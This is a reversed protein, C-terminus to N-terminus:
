NKPVSFKLEEGGLNLTVVNRARFFCMREGIIIVRSLPIKIPKFMWGCLLESGWIYLFQNDAGISLINTNVWNDNVAYFIRGSEHSKEFEVVDAEECSFNKRLMSWKLKRRKFFAAILILMYFCTFGLIVLEM